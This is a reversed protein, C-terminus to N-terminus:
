AYPDPCGAALMARREIGEMVEADEQTEHDYGLLHLCGHLILHLVHNKLPRSAADAEKQTTQLAIAVDGLFTPPANESAHPPLAPDGGPAEASLKFAPWSLVNTPSQKGRHATNLESIRADDCAMVCVEARRHGEPLVALAMQSAQEAIVPLEPLAETWAEAEIVLDTVQASM